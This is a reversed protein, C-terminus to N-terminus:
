KFANRVGVQGVDDVTGELDDSSARLSHYEGWLADREKDSMGALIIALAQSLVKRAERERSDM